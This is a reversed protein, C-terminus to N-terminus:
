ALQGSGCAADSIAHDSVDRPERGSPSGILRKVDTWRPGRPLETGTQVPTACRHAAAIGPSCSRRKQCVPLVAAVRRSLKRVHAAWLVEQGLPCHARGRRLRSRVQALVLRKGALPSPCACSLTGQRPRPLIPTEVGFRGRYPDAGWCAALCARLMGLAVGYEFTSAVGPGPRSSAAEVVALVAKEARILRLVEDLDIEGCALPFISSIPLV